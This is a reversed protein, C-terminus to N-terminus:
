ISKIFLPSYDLQIINIQKFSFKDLIYINKKDSNAIYIYKNSVSIDELYGNLHIQKKIQNSTLDIRYIIGSEIALAFINNTDKDYIFNTTIEKIIYSKEVEYTCLNIISVETETEDNVLYALVFLYNNNIYLHMPKGNTYIYKKEGLTLDYELIENEEYCAIYLKANKDNVIIDHPKVGVTITGVLNCSDAEVISVSDSEFNTIYLCDVYKCIHRPDKGTNCDLFERNNYKLVNNNFSDLIYISDNDILCSHLITENNLIIHDIIEINYNDDNVILRSIYICNNKSGVILSKEDYIM